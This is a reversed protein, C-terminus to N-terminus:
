RVYEYLLLLYVSASWTYGPARLGKGTLADFNEYFGHAKSEVMNCFGVAVKRALDVRGGRRLGDVLLYTTPAWIPGRWYGDSEYQSSKLAETAPGNETLFESELIYVLREFVARDLFAGLVLPMVTILSTQKEASRHTGSQYAIFKKGDWGHRHLSFILDNARKEWVDANDQRGLRTALDSLTKMQLVLYASLDPSEIFFGIDFITSNDWGSDFGQPYEPIGDNDSDRYDFWWTTWKELLDYLRDLTAKDYSHFALLHGLCWGHVPPKTVGWLLDHPPNWLDPLAGNPAQLEFPLLFQQLGADVDMLSMALANFCHDWSWVSSMFKKSMLVADYRFCGESRVTSSWLAYWAREAYLKRETPAEPTKALYAEWEARIATLDAETDITLQRPRTEVTTVELQLLISGGKGSVSVSSRHDRVFRLYEQEPGALVPYGDLVDIGAYIADPVSFVKFRREGEQVGYSFSEVTSLSVDLNQTAIVISTDSRLYVRGVGGRAQIEIVWPKAEARVSALEGNQEFRLRFMGYTFRRRCNHILFTLNDEEATVSLYAGYRSFPTRAIDLTIDSV